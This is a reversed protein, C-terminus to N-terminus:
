WGPRRREQNQSDMALREINMLRQNINELAVKLNDLKMSVIELSKEYSDNRLSQPGMDPRGESIIRFQDQAPAMQPQGFSQQSGFGGGRMPDHGMGPQQYPQQSGFGSDLMPDQLATNPGMGPDYSGPASFDVSTDLDMTPEKKWFMVKDLFSM